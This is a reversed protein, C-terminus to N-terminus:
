SFQEPIHDGTTANVRVCLLHRSDGFHLRKLAEMIHLLQHSAHGRQTPKDRSETNPSVREKLEELFLVLELPSLLCLLGEFVQLPIQSGRGSQYGQFGM